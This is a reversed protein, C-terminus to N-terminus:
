EARLTIAPDVRAARWAPMWCAIGSVGLLLAIVAFYTIPDLPSIDFLLTVLTRSAAVAGALGIVAGLGTLTIGQRVVLAFIDRPSAGLALRVGIERTREAVSGSLVGYVGIAALALAAIGFAEFVILAFRRQAESSALLADMTAVRTIPQDKDVSWIATRIAPALAATDGRARVVLSLADEAFWWQAPTIYVADPLSAALSAQKVDGVVGVITYWPKDAPGVHVRQGIPDQGPFEHKALSESILVALPTNEVDPENLFRGRHLSVSMTEFYAPTVAYRFVDYSREDKEFLAGYRGFEDGGGLPLLSTFAASAVGPVHGVEELARTYFQRRARDDDFQHGSTQVQMTLVNSADFGPAVAFLRELSRLLLGASVLLVLALAVEAVVLTRRTLQHAGSANRSSQQITLRLDSRSVHLAPILGVALGVLTTIGLAFAFVAGNVAIANVRPLGPPSLALLADVGFEAVIIGFAGGLAALLVSETLQQRILRSRPAGLAARMAFERRRQAGRALLLNTVNVCAILLVLMVAGLVALLAPKVGRTVQDQLSDVIFGFKLSAWPARPFESLPTRAIVALDSRAQDGSIGARVRGVMLLHHGWEVTQLDTIHATDYQLPSWLEVSPALVNEFARPMVGIVTYSDGDLTIQHGLIARDAGFRRQWLRDSLIAVRPSHFACDSAQFDRGLVPSVGLVRFYDATVKQGDLREPEAPGTITPQWPEMVALSAFARNRAALERYTHFTTDARAGEFVDWIMMLREAHPYPLPRFLIPNVASLIATTAGIGLALTLVAVITFGPNRRLMRAGYRLDVFFTGIVNEWGSSRVQERVIAVNGLQLRATRRAEEPSLGSAV